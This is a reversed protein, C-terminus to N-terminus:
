VKGDNHAKLSQVAPNPRPSRVAQILLLQLSEVDEPGEENSAGCWDRGAVQLHAGTMIIIIMMMMMM